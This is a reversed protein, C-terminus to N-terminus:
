HMGNEELVISQAMGSPLSFDQEPDYQGGWSMLGDVLSQMSSSLASDEQADSIDPQSQDGTVAFPPVLPSADAFPLVMTPPPQHDVKFEQSKTPSQSKVSEAEEVSPVSQITPPAPEEEAVSELHTALLMHDVAEITPAELASQMDPTIESYVEAHAEEETVDETEVVPARPRELFAEGLGGVVDPMSHHSSGTSVRAECPVISSGLYGDRLCSWSDVARRTAVHQSRAFAICSKLVERKRQVNWCKVDHALGLAARRKATNAEHEVVAAHIAHSHAISARTQAARAEDISAFKEQCASQAAFAAADAAAKANTATRSARVTSRVDEAAAVAASALSAQWSIDDILDLDGEECAEKSQELGDVGKMLARQSIFKGRLGEWSDFGRVVDLHHGLLERRAEGIAAAAGLCRSLTNDVSGIVERLKDINEDVPFDGLFASEVEFQDGNAIERDNENGGYRFRQAPAVRGTTIGFFDTEFTPQPAPAATSGACLIRREPAPVPLPLLDYGEDEANADSEFENGGVLESEVQIVGQEFNEIEDVSGGSSDSNPGGGSNEEDGWGSRNQDFNPLSAHQLRASASPLGSTELFGHVHLAMAAQAATRVWSLNPQPDYASSTSKQQQLWFPISSKGESLQPTQAKLLKTCNAHDALFIKAAELGSQSAKLITNLPFSASLAPHELLYNLYRELQRAKGNPSNPNYYTESINSTAKKAKSTSANAAGAREKAQSSQKSPKKVYSGWFSKAASKIIGVGTAAAKMAAGTGEIATQITKEDPQFHSLTSASVSEPFPPLIRGCLTGGIGTHSKITDNLWKMDSFSRRVVVEEHSAESFYTVAFELKNTSASMLMPQSLKSGFLSIKVKPRKELQQQQASVATAARQKRLVRDHAAILTHDLDLEPLPLPARGKQEYDALRTPTLSVPPAPPPVDVVVVESGRPSNRHRMTQQLHRASFRRKAELYQALAIFRCFVMWGEVGLEVTHQKTSQYPQSSCEVVAKWVEEFTPSLNEDLNASKNLKRLDEDRRWFVPCRLTVFEQLAEKAVSGCSETDLISFLRSIFDFDQREFLLAHTRGSNEVRIEIMYHYSLSSTSSSSADVRILSGRHPIFAQRKMMLDRTSSRYDSPTTAASHHRRGSADSSLTRHSDLTTRDGFRQL